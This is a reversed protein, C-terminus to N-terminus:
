PCAPGAHRARRGGRALSPNSGSDSWPVLGAEARASGRARVGLNMPRGIFGGGRVRLGAFGAAAAGQRAFGLGCRRRQRRVKFATATAAEGSRQQRSGGDSNWRPTLLTAPRNKGREGGEPRSAQEGDGSHRTESDDARRPGRCRM